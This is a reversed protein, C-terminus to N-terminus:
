RLYHLLGHNRMESYVYFSHHTNDIHYKGTFTRAGLYLLYALYEEANGNNIVSQIVRVFFAEDYCGVEILYTRPIAAILTENGPRECLREVLEETNQRTLEGKRRMEQLRKKFLDPDTVDLISTTKSLLLGM